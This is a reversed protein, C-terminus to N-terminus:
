QSKIVVRARGPDASAEAPQGSGTDPRDSNAEHIFCRLDGANWDHAESSDAASCM